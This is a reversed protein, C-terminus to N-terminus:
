KQHLTQIFTVLPLNGRKKASSLLAKFTEPRVGTILDKLVESQMILGLESIPILDNCAKELLAILPERLAQNGNINQIKEILQTETLKSVMTKDFIEAAAAKVGREFYFDTIKYKKGVLAKQCEKQLDVDKTLMAMKFLELTDLATTPKKEKQICEIEAQKFENLKAFEYSHSSEEIYGYIIFNIERPLGTISM